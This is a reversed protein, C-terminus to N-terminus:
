RLRADGGFAFLHIEYDFHKTLALYDNKKM